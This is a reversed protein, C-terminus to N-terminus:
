TLTWPASTRSPRSPPSLSSPPRGRDSRVQPYKKIVDIDARLSAEDRPIIEVAIRGM